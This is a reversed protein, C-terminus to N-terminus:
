NSASGAMDEATITTSFSPKTVTTLALSTVPTFQLGTLRVTVLPLYDPGTPDGAYGLNSGRYVVEVNAPTADHEFRQVQGVINNFATSNYGGPLGAPCGACSCSSSNCVIDPVLSAPIPKGAKLGDVGVFDASAIGEAVPATVAAYRAAAQTAKEARNFEWIFRGGDIIAFLLLLLLPLVLAFEAASAGRCDRYLGAGSM